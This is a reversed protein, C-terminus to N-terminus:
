RSPGGGPKLTFVLAPKAAKALEERKIQEAGEFLDQWSKAKEAERREENDRNIKAAGLNLFAEIGDDAVKVVAKATAQAAEAAAQTLRAVTATLEEVLRKAAALERNRALVDANRQARPHRPIQVGPEARERRQRRREAAMVAVGLHITPEEDIERAQHSRADIRAESGARKLAQNALREWVGRLAMIEDAGAGLGAERRKTDSLEIVTKDGMVLQGDVVTVARTTTLIHAHHNRDDGDRHPRHVAIDAAVGYTKVLHRAFDRALEIRESPSLEAPLAVVWERATRADKRREAAEAANWLASRDVPGDTTMVEAHEVGQKRTYDAVWNTLEDVLRVAARYAAAAVSSRGSSRTVHKTSAHYIAM